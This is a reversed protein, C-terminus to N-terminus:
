LTRINRKAQEWHFKAVLMGLRYTGSSIVVCYVKLVITVGHTVHACSHASSWGVGLRWSKLLSSFNQDIHFSIWKLGKNQKFGIQGACICTM